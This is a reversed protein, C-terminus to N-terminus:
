SLDKLFYSPLSYTKNLIVKGYCKVEYDGDSQIYINTDKYDPNASVLIMNRNDDIYYQKCYMAGNVSFIGIDGNILESDRKVYVVDGDSIYPLMSNGSINVAFDADAPINDDVLIMEFDDGDLPASIGAAAPTAYKPIYREPNKHSVYNINHTQRLSKTRGIEMYCITRVINKGQEDLMQYDSILKEEDTSLKLNKNIINSTRGLLYDTSVNFFDSITLIAKLSPKKNGSEWNQITNTTVGISEAFKDQTLNAKLRLFRIIENIEM